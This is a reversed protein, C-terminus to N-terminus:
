TRVNSIIDRAFLVRRRWYDSELIDERVVGSTNTSHIIWMEDGKNKEVIGVHNIGSKDGFFILDGPEANKWPIHDGADAM